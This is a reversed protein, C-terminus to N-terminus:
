ASGVMLWTLRVPFGTTLGDMRAPLASKSARRALIATSWASTEAARALATAARFSEAVTSSTTNM